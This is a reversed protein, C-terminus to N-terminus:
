LDKKIWEQSIGSRKSILKQISGENIIELDLQLSPCYFINTETLKFLENKSVGSGPSGNLLLKGNEQQINLKLGKDHVYTGLFSSKEDIGAKIASNNGWPYAQNYLLQAISASHNWQDGTVNSLVIINIDDKPFSLVQASYNSTLGGHTVYPKNFKIGTAQGYAYGNTVPTIMM